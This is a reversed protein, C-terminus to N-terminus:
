SRHRRKRRVVQDEAVPGRYWINSTCFAGLGQVYAQCQAFSVFGCNESGSGALRACWPYSYPYLQATAAHPMSAMLGILGITALATRM